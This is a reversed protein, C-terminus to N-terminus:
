GASYNWGSESCNIWQMSSNFKSHLFSESWYKLSLFVNCFNMNKWHHIFINKSIFCCMNKNQFQINLGGSLLYHLKCLRQHWNVAFVKPRFNMLKSINFCYVKEVVVYNKNKLSINQRVKWTGIINLSKVVM